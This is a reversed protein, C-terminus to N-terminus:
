RWALLEQGHQGPVGPIPMEPTQKRYSIFRPGDFDNDVVNLGAAAGVTSTMSVISSGAHSMTILTDDPVGERQLIRAACFFPTKSEVLLRDGLLAAFRWPQRCLNGSTSGPVATSLIAHAQRSSM